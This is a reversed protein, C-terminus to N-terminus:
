GDIKKKLEDVKHQISSRQEPSTTEKLLDRYENLADRVLNLKEFASAVLLRNEFQKTLAPYLRYVQKTKLVGTANYGNDFLVKTGNLQLVGSELTSSLSNPTDKQSGHMTTTRPINLQDKEPLPVSRVQEMALKLLFEDQSLERLDSADVIVQEPVTIKKIDDITMVASSHKGSKMSDTPKLIDGVAVQLWSESAGYRVFVEGKVATVKIQAFATLSIALLLTICYLRNM